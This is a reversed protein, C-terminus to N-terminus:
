ISAIFADLTWLGKAGSYGTLVLWYTGADLVRDLFSRDQGYGINCADPVELGPCTAGSRISAITTFASGATHLLVRRRAALTLKFLQTPARPNSFARDCVSGVTSALTTSDGSFHGGNAGITIASACDGAGSVPVDPVPSRTYLAVTGTGGGNTALSVFTSGAPAAQRSFFFPSAGVRCLQPIGQTCNADLLAMGGSAVAPIRGVVLIDSVSPIDARFAVAALGSTCGSRVFDSGNDFPLSVKQGPLIAPALACTAGSSLSAPATLTAVLEISPATSTAATVVYRGPPVNPHVLPGVTSEKCALESALDVCNGSRFGLSVSGRGSLSRAEITVTSPAPVDLAFTRMGSTGCDSSLTTALSTFDVRTPTGAALPAPNTCGTTAVNNAPSPLPGTRLRLTAVIPTTVAVLQFTSSIGQSIRMRPFPSQVSQECSLAAEGCGSLESLTTAQNQSDSVELVTDTSPSRPVAVFITKSTSSLPFPCGSPVPASGGATSVVTEGDLPLVVPADCNQGQPVLCAAEDVQGSCNDDILNGCVESMLSNRLPDADDCDHGGCHDDPDGDSDVDRPVTTCTREREGCRSIHCGNGMGCVDGGSICGRRVHCVEFGNCYIGDDCKEDHTTHVCRGRARDCQDDTCPLGDNCPSDDNCPVDAIPPPATADALASSDPGADAVILTSNTLSRGPSSCAAAAAFGLVTACWVRWRFPSVPSADHAM